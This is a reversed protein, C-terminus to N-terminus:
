LHSHPAAPCSLKANRSLSQSSTFLLKKSTLFKQYAPASPEKKGIQSNTEELWFTSSYLLPLCYLGWFSPPWLSPAPHTSAAQFCSAPLPSSAAEPGQPVAAGRDAAQTVTCHCSHLLLFSGLPASHCQPHPSLLVGTMPLWLADRGSDFSGEDMPVLLGSVWCVVCRLGAESGQRGSQNPLGTARKM